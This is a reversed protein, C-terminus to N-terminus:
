EFVFGVGWEYLYPTKPIITRTYHKWQSKPKDSFRNEKAPIRKGKFDQPIVLYFLRETRVESKDDFTFELPAIKDLQANVQPYVCYRLAEPLKVAWYEAFDIRAENPFEYKKLGDMMFQFIERRTGCFGQNSQFDDDGVRADYFLYRYSTNEAFISGKRLEGTIEKGKFSPVTALFNFSDSTFKLKFKGDDKGTLYINPKGMAINGGHPYYNGGCGYMGWACPSYFNQQFQSYGWGGWWPSPWLNYSMPNFGPFTGTAIEASFGSSTPKRPSTELKVEILKNPLASIQILNQYSCGEKNAVDIQYNGTLLHVQGTGYMPVELQYIVNKDQSIIVQSVGKCSQNETQLKFEVIEAQASFAFFSLAIFLFNRM